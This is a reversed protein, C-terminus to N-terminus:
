LAVVGQEAIRGHVPKARGIDKGGQQSGEYLGADIIRRRQARGQSLQDIEGSQVLTRNMQGYTSDIDLGSLDFVEFVPAVYRQGELVNDGTAAQGRAEGHGGDFILLGSLVAPIPIAAEGGVQRHGPGNVQQFLDIGVVRVHFPAQ